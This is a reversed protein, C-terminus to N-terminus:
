ILPIPIEFLVEIMKLLVYGVILVRIAEIGMNVIGGGSETGAVEGFRLDDKM